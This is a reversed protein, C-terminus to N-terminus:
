HFSKLEGDTVTDVFLNPLENENACGQAYYWDFVKKEVEKPSGNISYPYVAVLENTIKSRLGVKVPQNGTMEFFRGKM